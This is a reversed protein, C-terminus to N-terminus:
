DRKFLRMGAEKEFAKCIMDLRQTLFRKYGRRLNADWLGSGAKHPILHSRMVSPFYRPRKLEKLYVAPRKSGISQNEEAVVFCLNCLSNSERISFHYRRLLTKPFIHHKDKRNSVSATEKLPILAGNELYKPGRLCLMLLYSITLSGSYTYDTRRVDAKSIRDTIVFNGQKKRALRRMFDLDKRINQYYGRGSYRGAVGTAWFWKRMERRQRSSPQALNNEFFFYSLVPVMNDSPLFSKNVVKLENCLYDIGKTIANRMRRWSHSFEKSVRGEEIEEKELSALAKEIATGGVEKQKRMVAVSAQIFTPDIENFGFPLESRLEMVLRRMDLRAARSFARDAKSIRLGGSNIRLFTERVEELDTTKVFVLPISYKRLRNRFKGVEALKHRNVMRSVHRRWGPLMIEKVPIHLRMQPRRVFGFRSPEFRKDFVFCLQDFNIEQGNYNRITGGELARYLASLRQQGDIIFWIVKNHDSHPPLVQQAHRLLNRQAADTEWILLTGIPLQRWISDFLNAVRKRDWVFERQIEPIAFIYDRCFQWLRAVSYNQITTQAM